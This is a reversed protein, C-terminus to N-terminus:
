RDILDSEVYCAPELPTLGSLSSHGLPFSSHTIHAPRIRINFFSLVFKGFGRIGNRVYSRAPLYCLYSNIGGLNGITRGAERAADQVNRHAMPNLQFMNTSTDTGARGTM